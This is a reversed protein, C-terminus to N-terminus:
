ANLLIRVHKLGTGMTIFSCELDSRRLNVSERERDYRVTISVMVFVNVVYAIWTYQPYGGRIIEILPVTSIQGLLEARTLVILTNRYNTIRLRFLLGLVNSYRHLSIEDGPADQPVSKLIYFCWLVNLLWVFVLGAVAALCLKLLDNRKMQAKAFVVPLVNAAGGLAVTGLLFPRGVHAWNNVIPQNINAAIVATVIVMLVLLSGKAFTMVSIVPQIILGAFIIVV